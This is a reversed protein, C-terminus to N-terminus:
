TVGLGKRRARHPTVPPTAEIGPASPAANVHIVPKALATGLPNDFYPDHNRSFKDLGTAALEDFAALCFESARGFSRNSFSGLIHEYDARDLGYASAVVADIACRLRWRLDEAPIAPWSYPKSVDGLQERWLPLFGRHNCSLRLSAHALFREALPALLPIPLEALIYLSVHAAAKQRLTWDFVFSNMVAVAILAAANPRQSPRREVNLTHGCIVGPPLIAAIATREDTSRAIERCAARFYRSNEVFWPRGALARLAIAYRPATDWTDSFQHITKGEHLVLHGERHLREANSRNTVSLAPGLLAAVPTFRNADDTMHAERSLLIGLGEAWGGFRRPLKFMRRAIALDGAGRLELLTAYAGGSSGIFASEYNMLRKPDEIQAFDTLYFACRVTRTPGPRRAVVLAFKFSPHIDFLKRRNEFSLCWQLRTQRLYLRRIGTAGENAHFASPVLMGIAGESGALQMKREAFV